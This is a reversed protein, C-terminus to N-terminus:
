TQNFSMVTRRLGEEMSVPLPAGICHLLKANSVVMDDTLKQLMKRNYVSFLFRILGTPVKWIREKKGLAQAIVRILENTSLSGDDAVNYIGSPINGTVLHDMVFNFNDINLFSRQNQFAGLPYPLGTNVFKYLLNLNGKNGPGHVMCPRILYFHKDKGNTQDLIYQEAKLKSRGYPSSPVPTVDEDIVHQGADVAAKISSLFIFRTAQSKLFNDYLKVTGEYNVRFYDEEKYQNSLDHAIGALHIVTDIHHRNLMDVSCSDVMVVPFSKFQKEAAERDRSVGFLRITSNSAFYRVLNSGLFGTVGTILVGGM